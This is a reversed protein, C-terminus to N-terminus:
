PIACTFSAALNADGAGNYKPYAPYECLPRTRGLTTANTDTIIQPGPAEGKTVWADLVDLADWGVRFNGNGHGFGPAMYFRAFQSYSANQILPLSTM